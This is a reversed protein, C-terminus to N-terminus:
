RITIPVTLSHGDQDQVTATCSGRALPKVSYTASSRGTAVLTIDALGACSDRQAFGAVKAGTSVMFYQLGAKVPADVRSPTVNMLGSPGTSPEPTAAEAAAGPEWVTGDTFHVSDVGCRLQPAIFAPLVFSQGAGNRYRHTVEVGPSFTGVDRIVFSTGNSNVTFNVLNVTKSSENTFQIKVGSSSQTLQIGAISQGNNNQLEPTCSNIIIPAVIGMSPSSQAALAVPMAASCLVALITVGKRM